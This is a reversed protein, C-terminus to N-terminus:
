RPLVTCTMGCTVSSILPRIRRSPAGLVDVHDDGLDPARHAVDLDDGEDLGDALEAPVDPAVVDAVHVERQNRIQARGPFLLGLGGLVRDGLEAAPADLGVHDDAADVPRDGVVQLPLDGQQAVHGISATTEAMSARFM